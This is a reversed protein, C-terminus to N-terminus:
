RYFYKKSADDANVSSVQVQSIVAIARPEYVHDLLLHLTELHGRLVLLDGKRLPKAVDQNIQSGIRLTMPKSLVHAVKTSLSGTYRVTHRNGYIPPFDHKLAIRTERANPVFLFVEHDTVRTVAVTFSINAGPLASAQQRIQESRERFLFVNDKLNERADIADGLAALDDYGVQQVAVTAQALASQQYSALAFVSLYIVLRFRAHM